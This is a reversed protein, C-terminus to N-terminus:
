ENGGTAPHNRRQNLGVRISRAALLVMALLIAATSTATLALMRAGTEALKVTILANQLTLVALLADTFNITRLMRVIPNGSRGGRRLNVSAVVVKYTTYAAMSIAFILDYGVPRELKVMLAAPAILSLDLALLLAAAVRFARWRRAEVEPAPRRRSVREARLLSGRLVTLLLYYVCISGNWVSARILGMAGNYLAFILTILLSGLSNAMTRFDFSRRWLQFFRDM